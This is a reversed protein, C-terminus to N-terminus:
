HRMNQRKNQVKCQMGRATSYYITYVAASQVGRSSPTLNVVVGRTGKEMVNPSQNEARNGYRGVENLKLMRVYKSQSVNNTAGHLVKQKVRNKM